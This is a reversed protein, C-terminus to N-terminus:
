YRLQFGAATKAMQNIYNEKTWTPRNAKVTSKYERLIINGYTYEASGSEGSTFASKYPATQVTM